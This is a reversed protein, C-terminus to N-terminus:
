GLIYDPHQADAPVLSGGQFLKLIGLVGYSTCRAKDAISQSDFGELSRVNGSKGYSILAAKGKYVGPAKDQYPYLVLGETGLDAIAVHKHPLPHPFPPVLAPRSSDNSAKRNKPQSGFIGAFM